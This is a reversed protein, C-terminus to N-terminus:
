DEQNKLLQLVVVSNLGAYLKKYWPWFFLFKITFNVIQFVWFIIVPIRSDWLIFFEWFVQHNSENSLVAIFVWTWWYRVADRATWIRLSLDFTFSYQQTYVTWSSVQLNRNYYRILLLFFLLLFYVINNYFTKNKYIFKKKLQIETIPNYFCFLFLFDLAFLCFYEVFCIDSESNARLANM